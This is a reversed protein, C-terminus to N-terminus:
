IAPHYKLYRYARNRVSTETYYNGICAAVTKWDMGLIYRLHLILMDKPDEVANIYEMAPACAKKYEEQVESLQKELFSIRVALSGVPDSIGSGHPMGDLNPSAPSAQGKLTELTESIENCRIRLDYPRQLIVNEHVKM